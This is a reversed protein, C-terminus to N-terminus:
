SIQKSKFNRIKLYINKLIEIKEYNKVGFKYIPSSISFRKRCNKCSTWSTYVFRDPIYYNKYNIKKNCFPCKILISYRNPMKEKQMKLPIIYKTYKRRAELIDKKLQLVEKDTMKDTMNFWCTDQMQNEIFNLKDKIIGKKISLNYMESGPYPQIFGLYVQGHCYKKWYDLTQKATQTTEAKDGFIFNGQIIMKHKLSLKLANDIMKPTIPKKMSNLVEQNYSEFGFSVAYCGSQKLKILMEDDINQVSLQCTWKCEWDLENILKKIEDCFEYLRKKNISFLDDYISIINIKYKKINITLEKMINELSRERYRIGLCHYCFTCQFPCGRSCMIPYVRPYDFLGYPSSNASMNDLQEEFEMGDFDPLPLEDINKIQERPKTFRPKNDKWYIIGDVKELPNNKEIAKLLEIITLEGEGLVAFDPKLSEFILKSETTILAGGLIFKPKSSHKKTINIIKEIISYGIGMHGTCILDYKKSNLKKTLIQETTGNHYNLNLCDLNYNNKKLVASIYGLGMPFYYNYNPKNSFDYRPVILLINM